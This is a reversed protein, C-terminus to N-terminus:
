DDTMVLKDHEAIMAWEEETMSKVDGRFFGSRKEEVRIIGEVEMARLFRPWDM